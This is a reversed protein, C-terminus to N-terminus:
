RRTNVIEWDSDRECRQVERFHVPNDKGFRKAKLSGDGVANHAMRRSDGWREAVEDVSLCPRPIVIEPHELPM